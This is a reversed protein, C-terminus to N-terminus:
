RPVACDVPVGRHDRAARAGGIDGRGDPEGPLAVQLDRHATAEVVGCAPGEAIVAQHDVETWHALDRDIRHSPAGPDAPSRGHCIQVRGGLRM